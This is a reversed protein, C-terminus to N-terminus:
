STLGEVFVGEVGEVSDVHVYAKYTDDVPTYTEVDLHTDHGVARRGTGSTLVGAGDHADAREPADHTHTLAREVETRTTHAHM